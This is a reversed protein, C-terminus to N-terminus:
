RLPAPAGRNADSYRTANTGEAKMEIYEERTAEEFESFPFTCIPTLVKREANPIQEFVQRSGNKAVEKFRGPIIVRHGRQIKLVEGNCALEVQEADNPHSKPGFSVWHFTEVYNTTDQGYFANCPKQLKENIPNACPDGMTHDDSKHGCKPCLVTSTVPAQRQEAPPTTSGSTEILPKFIEKIGWGGDVEAAEWKSPDLMKGRMASRAGNASKFPTGDNKLIVQPDRGTQAPEQQM